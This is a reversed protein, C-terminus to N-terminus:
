LFAFSSCMGTGSIPKGEELLDIPPFLEDKTGLRQSGSNTPNILSIFIGTKGHINKDHYSM